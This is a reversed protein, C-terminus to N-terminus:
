RSLRSVLEGTPNADFWAIDQRMIARYYRLRIKHVQRESSWQFTAVQVIGAIMVTAAIAVFIFVTTNIDRIFDDGILCEFNSLIDSSQLIM